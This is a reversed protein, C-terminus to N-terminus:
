SRNVFAVIEDLGPAYGDTADVDLAPAPLSVRDFSAYAREWDESSLGVIVSHAARPGRRRYRAFAVAADVRCQVIRLRALEALPELGRRWLPDQFAAEAVVSVEAELLLRVVDFFLPFARQTLPDGAAAEFERGLAHVM